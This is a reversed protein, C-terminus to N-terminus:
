AVIAKLRVAFMAGLGNGKSDAQIEGGHLDVITKCIALGLGLGAKSAHSRDGQEFAVFARPLFEAEMGIGTDAIEVVCSDGERFSRVDIRGGAPTFKIANRLLNTFVQQMRGEDANVTQPDIASHLRLTLGGVDAGARCMDIAQRLVDRLDLPCCHVAVKSHSLRNLDLLDDILRAELTINRRIMGMIDRLEPTLSPDHEFASSAMLVPTLPTRLEHSLVAIFYEKDKISAQLQATLADATEALEEQRVATLLLSENVAAANARFTAAETSDTVQIMVGVPREDSGLIAWAVYSWYVTHGDGHKQESLTEPTGTRFVRDLLSACGNALGEPVAEAFPLGILHSRDMGTLAQFAANAYRVICTTGEVAVMAHPSLESFYHCIQPLAFAPDTTDSNSFQRM